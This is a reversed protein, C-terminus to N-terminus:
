FNRVKGIVLLREALATDVRNRGVDISEIEFHDGDTKGGACAANLASAGTNGIVNGYINLVQLPPRCGHLSPDIADALARAGVDGIRNHKLSLRALTSSCPGPMSTLVRALERAGIDDM